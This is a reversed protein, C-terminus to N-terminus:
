VVSKRDVAPAGADDIAITIATDAALAGPPIKLTVGSPGDITGGNAASITQTVSTDPPPATSGGGGGGCAVLLAVSAAWFCRLANARSQNSQSSMTHM